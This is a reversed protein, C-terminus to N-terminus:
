LRSVEGNPGFTHNPYADMLGARVVSLVWRSAWHGRTDTLVVGPRRQHAGVLDALRVGVLAALEGRTVVPAEAIKAYEAPLRSEELSRRAAEIRDGVDGGADIAAAREYAAEAGAYDGAEALLEGAAMWSQRDGADLETARRLHDLARTREGQRREVIALERYLFASEPSSAIAREYARASEELRGAAAADRAAQVAAQQSRFSLTELRRRADSSDPRAALAAEYASAAEAPKDLALLADGRGVLAPVYAEDRALARAFEAEARAADGAALRAYGLGAEAPYFRPDAKLAAAFERQAGAADGAQLFQWGRDIRGVLEPRALSPPVEPFVYDPHAPTAVAPPPALKAACAGAAVAASLVIAATWPCALRRRCAREPM